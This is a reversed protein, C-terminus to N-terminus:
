LGVLANSFEVEDFTKIDGIGEGLGLFYIPIKFRASLGVVVGAKATGDLKTVVLGDIGAVNRFEELQNFANQGTTADLVLLSHQPSSGTNKEIVKTIKALEDMLNQHNHLRGATDIMLIDAKGNIATEIASYAVSAPDSNTEGKVFVCGARDAWIELQDVAAARFTDCAAVIVKKGERTFLAALKGITTTKGNGNM